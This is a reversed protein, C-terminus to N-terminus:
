GKILMRLWYLFLFGITAGSGVGVIAAGNRRALANKFQQLTRGRGYRDLWEDDSTITVNENDHIRGHVANAANSHVSAPARGHASAPARGHLTAGVTGWEGLAADAM